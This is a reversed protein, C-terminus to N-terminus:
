KILEACGMGGLGYKNGSYFLYVKNKYHFINGFCLMESDWGDDSVDINLISDNRCFSVGDASIGIGLRYGKSFTRISYIMQFSDNLHRVTPTSLAHEDQGAFTFCEDGQICPWVLPSDSMLTKITYVPMDKGVENRKWRPACDANYWMRYKGGVNIVYPASRICSEGDIRDIVPVESLRSFESSLSNSLAISAFIFYPIKKCLQYGSYYMLFQGDYPIICSVVVGSEDFNGRTGVDLVPRESFGVIKLPNDPDVDVYGIRGVNDRDCMTNFIRLVGSELLHPVPVMINKEYWSLNFTQADCIKGMKRWEM